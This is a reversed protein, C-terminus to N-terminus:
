KRFVIQADSSKTGTCPLLTLGRYVGPVTKYLCMGRRSELGRVFRLVNAFPLIEYPVAAFLSTPMCDAWLLCCTSSAVPTALKSPALSKWRKHASNQSHQGKEVETLGRWGAHFIMAMESSIAWLPRWIMLRLAWSSGTTLTPIFFWILCQSFRGTGELSYDTCLSLLAWM